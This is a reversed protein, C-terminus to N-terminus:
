NTFRVPAAPNRKKMEPNERAFSRRQQRVDRRRFATRQAPQYFTSPTERVLIPTELHRCGTFTASTPFSFFGTENLYDDLRRPRHEPMLVSLGRPIARCASLHVKFPGRPVLKRELSAIAIFMRTCKMGPSLMKFKFSFHYDGDLPYRFHIHFPLQTKFGLTKAILKDPTFWGLIMRPRRKIWYVAELGEKDRICVKAARVV